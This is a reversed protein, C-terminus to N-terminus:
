LSHKKKAIFYYTFIGDEIRMLIQYHTGSQKFPMKKYAIKLQGIGSQVNYCFIGGQM